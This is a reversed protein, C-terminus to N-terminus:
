GGFFDTVSESFSVVLDVTSRHIGTERASEVDWGVLESDFRCLHIFTTGWNGQFGDTRLRIQELLNECVTRSSAFIDLQMRATCVGVSRKLTVQRETSQKSYIILPLASGQPAADPYIRTSILSTISAQSTLYIFLDAEIM